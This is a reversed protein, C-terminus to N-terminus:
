QGEDENDIIEKEGGKNDSPQPPTAKAPVPPKASPASTAPTAPTATADAAM